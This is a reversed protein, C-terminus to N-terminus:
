GKQKRLLFLGASGFLLHIVVAALLPNIYNARALSQMAGWFGWAVFALGCSAPIAVSLDRGWRRYSILLVPLGLLLLPLGLLTYSIRGYFDAWAKVKDENTRQRYVRQYLATISLESAEYKPVFFNDPTEPLLIKEETFIRTQYGGKADRVQTQGNHIIWEKNKWEAFEASILSALQHTETWKSYSFNAFVPQQPYPRAFSYFGERGKYYYRGNRFIGLPIMGKVNEFWITNTTSITAPLLWQAMGLFLLTCLSGGILLPKVITRLPVGGAMLATLERHHNLLGLTIVGSLLILVPGLQDIIFPISLIFFNLIVAMPKGASIFDDTKEFFDVLLYIAVFGSAVACFIRVFQTLIYRNLLLM